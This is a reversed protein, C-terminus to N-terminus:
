TRVEQRLAVGFFACHYSCGGFGYIFLPFSAVTGVAAKM